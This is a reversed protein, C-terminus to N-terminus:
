QEKKLLSSLGSAYGDQVFLYQVGTQKERLIFVNKLLGHKEEHIVEFRKENKMTKM